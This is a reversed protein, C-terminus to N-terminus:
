AFSDAGVGDNQQFAGDCARFTSSFFPHGVIALITTPRYM